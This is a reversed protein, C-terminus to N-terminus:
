RGAARRAARWDRPAALAVIGVLERTRLTAPRADVVLGREVGLEGRLEGAQGSDRMAGSSRLM